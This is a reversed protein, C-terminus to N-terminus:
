WLCILICFRLYYCLCAVHKGCATAPSFNLSQTFAYLESQLTRLAAYHGPLPVIDCVFTAIAPPHESQLVAAKQSFAGPTSIWGGTSISQELKGNSIRANQALLFSAGVHISLLWHRKYSSQVSTDIYCCNIGENTEGIRNGLFPSYYFSVTSVIQLGTYTAKSCESTSHKHHNLGPSLSAALHQGGDHIISSNSQM